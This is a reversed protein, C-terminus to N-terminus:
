PAPIEVELYAGAQVSALAAVVLGKSVRIRTWDNTNLAILALRRGALNQQYLIGQDTTILLDFGASEAAALLEGNTLEAWGREYATEVRHGSSLM